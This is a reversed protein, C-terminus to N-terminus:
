PMVLIEDSKWLIQSSRCPRWRKKKDVGQIGMSGDRMAVRDGARAPATLLEALTLASTVGQSREFEV